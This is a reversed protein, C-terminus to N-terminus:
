KLYYLAVTVGGENIHNSVDEPIKGKGWDVLYLEYELITAVFKNGGSFYPFNVNLHNFNWPKIHIENFVGSLQDYLFLVKNDGSYGQAFVIDGVLIPPSNLYKFNKTSRMEALAGYDNKYSEFENPNELILNIKKLPNGELDFQLAFDTVPKHYYIYKDFKTFLGTHFKVDMFGEPYKEFKALVNFEKDTKIVQYGNIDSFESEIVLGFLFGNKLAVFSDARFEFKKVELLAWDTSYVFLRKRQRDLLIVQGDSTVDFDGLRRYEDPGDGIEGLRSIFKGNLDFVYVHNLGTLDLVFIFNESIILKDVQTFFYDGSQDLNIYEPLNVVDRIDLDGKGFYFSTNSEDFYTKNSRNCSLFALSVLVFCLVKM